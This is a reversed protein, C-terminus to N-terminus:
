EVVIDCECEPHAPPMIGFMGAFDAPKQAFPIAEKMADVDGKEVASYFDEIHEEADKVEYVKDHLSECIVCTRETERTVWRYTTIGAYSMSNINAIASTRTINTNVVLAWYRDEGFTKEFETVTYQESFQAKIVGQIEYGTLGAEINQQIIGAIRRSILTNNAHNSLWVIDAQSLLRISRMDIQNLDTSITEKRVRYARKQSRYFDPYLKKIKSPLGKIQKKYTEFIISEVKKVTKDTVKTNYNDLYKYVAKLSKDLSTHGYEKLLKYYRVRYIERPSPERKEIM